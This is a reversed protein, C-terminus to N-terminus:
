DVEGLEKNTNQSVILMLKCFKAQITDRENYCDMQATGKVMEQIKLASVIDGKKHYKGKVYVKDQPNYSPTKKDVLRGLTM